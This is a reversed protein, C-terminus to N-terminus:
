SSLIDGIEAFNYINLIWNTKILLKSGGLLFSSLFYQLFVLIWFSDMSLVM